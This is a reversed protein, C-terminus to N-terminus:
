TLPPLADIDDFNDTTFEPAEKDVVEFVADDVALKVVAERGTAVEGAGGSRV